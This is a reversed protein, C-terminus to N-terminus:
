IPNKETGLGKDEGTAVYKSFISEMKREVLDPFVEPLLFSMLILKLKLSHGVIDPSRYNHRPCGLNYVM